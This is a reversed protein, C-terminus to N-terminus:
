AAALRKFMEVLHAHFGPGLTSTKIEVTFGDGEREFRLFESGPHVNFAFADDGEHLELYEGEFTQAVLQQFSAWPMPKGVVVPRRAYIGIGLGM